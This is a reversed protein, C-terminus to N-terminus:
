GMSQLRCWVVRGRPASCGRHGEPELLHLQQADNFEERSAGGNDVPGLIVVCCVIAVHLSSPFGVQLVITLQFAVCHLAIVRSELGKCSEHTRLRNM